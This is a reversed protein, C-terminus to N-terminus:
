IRELIIEVILEQTPKNFETFLYIDNNVRCLNYRVNIFQNHCVSNVIYDGDPLNILKFRNQPSKNPIRNFIKLSGNENNIDLIKNEVNNLTLPEELSGFSKINKIMKNYKLNNINANNVNLNDINSDENNLVKINATELIDARHSLINQTELNVVGADKAQISNVNIEESNIHKSLINDTEIDTPKFEDCELKVAKLDDVNILKSNIKENNLDNIKAEKTIINDTNVVKSLISNTNITTSDVVDSDIKKSKIFNINASDVKLNNLNLDKSFHLNNDNCVLLGDKLVPFGLIDNLDLSKELEKINAGDENIWFIKKNSKNYVALYDDNDNIKVNNLNIKKKITIGDCELDIFNGYPTLSM